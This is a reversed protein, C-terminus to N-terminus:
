AAILETVPFNKDYNGDAFDFFVINNAPPSISPVAYHNFASGGSYPLPQTAPTVLMAVGSSQVASLLGQLEAVAREAKTSKMYERDGDKNIKYFFYQAAGEQFLTYIIGMMITDTIPIGDIM